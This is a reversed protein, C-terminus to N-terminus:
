SCHMIPKDLETRLYHPGSVQATISITKFQGRASLASSGSQSEFRTAVFNIRDRSSRVSLQITRVGMESHKEKHDLNAAAGSHM